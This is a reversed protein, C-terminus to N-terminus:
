RLLLMKQTEPFEKIRYFYVGSSVSNGESSKGNWQILNTGLSTNVPMSYVLQGCINYIDIETKFSRDASYKIVTSSNFPNPYNGLLRCQEPLTIETEIYTITSDLYFDIGFLDPDDVMDLFLPLPFYMGNYGYIDAFVKYEGEHLGSTILYKGDIGTQEFAILDNDINTAYVRVDALPGSSGSVIGSISFGPTGYDQTIAGGNHIIINASNITVVEAEQWSFVNPWFNPIIGNGSIEIIYSGAVLNKITFCGYRNSLSYAIPQGTDYDLATLKVGEMPFDNDRHVITGSISLNYHLSRDVWFDIGPMLQQPEVNIIDALKSDFHNDYYLYIFEGPQSIDELVAKIYYNGATLAFMYFGREDTVISVRYPDGWIYPWQYATVVAGRIPEGTNSDRVQGCLMGFGPRELNFDIGYVANDISVPIIEGEKFIEADPYFVTEYGRARVLVRYHGPLLGDLCYNGQNTIPFYKDCQWGENPFDIKIASVLFNSEQNVGTIIEGYILCGLELKFSINIIQSPFVNVTSSSAIMYQDPFFRKVYNDAEASIYYQGSELQYTFKGDSDVVISDLISFDDSYFIVKAESLPDGQDTCVIGQVIGNNSLIIEYDEAISGGYVLATLMLFALLIKLLRIM